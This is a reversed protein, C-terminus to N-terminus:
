KKFFGKISNGVFDRIANIGDNKFQNNGSYVNTPESMRGAYPIQNRINDFTKNILKFRNIVQRNVEKIGAEILDDGLKKFALKSKDKAQQKLKDIANSKDFEDKTLVNGNADLFGEFTSVDNGNVFNELGGGPDNGNDNNGDIEAFTSGSGINDVKVYSQLPMGHQISGDDGITSNNTENPDIGVINSNKNDVFKVNMGMSSSNIEDFVFKEFRMTSYKYDFSIDFGELLSGSTMDIESGHPMNFFFQCDYLTYKYRSINDALVSLRTPGDKVVKNFNRVESITIEAEFRLLNPPILQKGNRRSWSLSKYLSALYGMNQNVDEYLTLGIFDKGYEIFSKNFEGNTNSENLRDLGTIKKIYHVKSDSSIDSKFFKNFQEKFETIIDLRSTIELNKSNFETNIFDEVSGNFLPSQISKIVIDYGLLTPDENDDLTRIFSGLNITKLDPYITKGGGDVEPTPILQGDLNHVFGKTGVDKFKDLTEKKNSLVENSDRPTGNPNLRTGYEVPMDTLDSRQDPVIYLDSPVSRSDTVIKFKNKGGDSAPIIDSFKFDEAPKNILNNADDVLKILPKGGFGIKKAM